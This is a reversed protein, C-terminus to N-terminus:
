AFLSDLDFLGRSRGCRSGPPVPDNARRFEFRSAQGKEILQLRLAASNRHGFADTGDGCDLGRLLRAVLRGFARKDALNLDYAVDGVLVSGM